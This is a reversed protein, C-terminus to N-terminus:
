QLFRLIEQIVNVLAYLGAIVFGLIRKNKDKITFVIMFPVFLWIFRLFYQVYPFWVRNYFSLGFQSIIAWFLNSVFMWGVVLLLISDYSQNSSEALNASAGETINGDYNKIADQIQELDLGQVNPGYKNSGKNSEICYLIILWISGVLPILGLLLFLGSRGTDHLRRVSLAIGPIFSFLAYLIYIPGYGVRGKIFNINLFNDLFFAIIGFLLNILVFMWFETRSSRGKFDVYREIALAYWKM